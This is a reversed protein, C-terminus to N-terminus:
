RLLVMKKTEIYSGAQLRYFYIGSPLATADFEIKYSGTSKEENVLTIVEEGLINYLKLRVISNIPIDFKITTVPNFPNPYNQSLSFEYPITEAPRHQNDIGTSSGYPNFAYLYGGSAMVLATNNGGWPWLGIGDEERLVLPVFANYLASYALFTKDNGSLV